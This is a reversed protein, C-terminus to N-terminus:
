PSSSSNQERPESATGVGQHPNFGESAFSGGGWLHVKGWPPPGQGQSRGLTGLLAERRGTFPPERSRPALMFSCGPHALIAPATPPHPPPCPRLDGLSWATCVDPGPSTSLNGDQVVKALGQPPPPLITFPSRISPFGYTLDRWFTFHGAWLGVKHCVQNSCSVPTPERCLPLILGGMTM